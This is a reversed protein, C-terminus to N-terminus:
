EGKPSSNCFVPEFNSNELTKLVFVASCELTLVRGLFVGTYGMVLPRIYSISCTVSHCCNRRRKNQQKRM